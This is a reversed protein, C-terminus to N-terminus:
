KAVFRPRVIYVVYASVITTLRVIVNNEHQKEVVGALEDISLGDKADM